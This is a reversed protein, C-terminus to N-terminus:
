AVSNSEEFAFTPFNANKGGKQQGGRRVHLEPGLGLWSGHWLQPLVPDKLGRLLALSQVHMRSSFLCWEDGQMVALVGSNTNKVIDESSNPLVSKLSSLVSSCGQTRESPSILPRKGGWIQNSRLIFYFPMMVYFLLSSFPGPLEFYLSSHYSAVHKWPLLFKSYKRASKPRLLQLWQTWMRLAKKWTAYEAFHLSNLM